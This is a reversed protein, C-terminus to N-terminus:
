TAINTKNAVSEHLHEVVGLLFVIILTAIDSTRGLTLICLVGM